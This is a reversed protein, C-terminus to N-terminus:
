EGRVTQSDSWAGALGKKKGASGRCSRRESQKLAAQSLELEKLSDDAIKIQKSSFVAFIEWLMKTLIDRFIWEQLAEPMRPTLCCSLIGPM